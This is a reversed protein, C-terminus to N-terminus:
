PMSAIRVKEIEGLNTTSEGRECLIRADLACISVTVNVNQLERSSILLCLHHCCRKRLYSVICGNRRLAMARPWAIPVDNFRITAGDRVDQRQPGIRRLRPRVDGKLM